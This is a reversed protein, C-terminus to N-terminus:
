KLREYSEIDSDNMKAKKNSDGSDVSSPKGWFDDEKAEDSTKEVNTAM